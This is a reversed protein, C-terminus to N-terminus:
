VIESRKQIEVYLPNSGVGGCTQAVKVVLAHDSSQYQYQSKSIEPRCRRLGPTQACGSSSARRHWTWHCHTRCALCGPCRCWHGSSGPSSWRFWRSIPHPQLGSSEGASSQRQCRGHRFTAGRSVHHRSCWTLSVAARGRWASATMMMIQRRKDLHSNTLKCKMLSVNLLTLVQHVKCHVFVRSCLNNM